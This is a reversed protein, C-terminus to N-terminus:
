YWLIISCWKLLSLRLNWHNSVWQNLFWFFSLTMHSPSFFYMYSFTLQWAQNESDSNRYYAKFNQSEEAFRNPLSCDPGFRWKVSSSVWSRVSSKKHYCPENIDSSSSSNQSGTQVIRNWMTTDTNVSGVHSSNWLCDSFNIFYWLLKFIEQKRASTPVWIFQSWFLDKYAPKPPKISM